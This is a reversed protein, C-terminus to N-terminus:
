YVDMERAAAALADDVSDVALAPSTSDGQQPTTPSTKAKGSSPPRKTQTSAEDTAAKGSLIDLVHRLRQTEQTALSTSAAKEEGADSCDAETAASTHKWEELQGSRDLIAAKTAEIVLKQAGIADRLHGAMRRQESVVSHGAAYVEDLLRGATELSAELSSTSADVASISSKILATTAKAKTMLARQRAEAHTRLATSAAAKKDLRTATLSASRSVYKAMQQLVGAALQHHKQVHSLRSLAGSFHSRDVKAEKELEHQDQETTVLAARLTRLDATEEILQDKLHAMERQLLTAEELYREREKWCSAAREDTAAQANGIDSVRRQILKELTAKALTLHDPATSSTSKSAAEIHLQIQLLSVTAPRPKMETMDDAIARKIRRLQDIEEKRQAALAMGAGTIFDCSQKIRELLTKEVDMVRKTWIFQHEMVAALQKKSALMKAEVELKANLRTLNMQLEHLTMHQLSMTANLEAQSDNLSKDLTLKLAALKKDELRSLAVIHLPDEATIHRSANTKLIRGASLEAARAIEDMQRHVKFADADHAQLLAAQTATLNRLRANLAAMQERIGAAAEAANDVAASRLILTKNLAALTHAHQQIKAQLAAQRRQCRYVCGPPQSVQAEVCQWENRETGNNSTVRRNRTTAGRM